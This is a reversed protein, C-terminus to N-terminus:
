LVGSSKAVRERRELEELRIKYAMRTMFILVIIAAAIGYDTATFPLMPGYIAALSFLSSVLLAGGILKATDLMAKKKLKDM